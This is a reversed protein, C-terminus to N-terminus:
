CQPLSKPHNCRSKVLVDEMTLKTVLQKALLDMDVNCQAIPDLKHYPITEDQHGYEHICKVKIPLKDRLSLCASVLNCNKSNPTVKAKTWENIADVARENDCHIDISGRTVTKHSCIM